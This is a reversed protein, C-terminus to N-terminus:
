VTSLTADTHQDLTTLQVIPVTPALHEWGNFVCAVRLPLLLLDKFAQEMAQKMTFLERKDSGSNNMGSKGPVAGVLNPHVNDAYCLTNTAATMEDAWDGGEKTTEINTIRVDHLERGNPDLMYGTIWAKGSNRLGLMFDRMKEKEKKIRELQKVPDTIHESQLLRQWYSREVEILYKVSSSNRLKARKGVSIMRKEDYSGGRFISAYYPVPYYPNTATPFRSVIAFKRGKEPTPSLRGDRLPSRGLRRELDGLPDIENLLPIREVAEPRAQQWDALYVYRIRGSRDAKAFRVSAADRHVLRNIKTGDASLIVITLAFYYFKMATAQELFYRPFNQALAWRVVQPDTTPQGTTTDTLRIGAGYLTLINTLKNQATVEDAEILDKLTYPLHNDHGWMAYTDREYGPVPRFQQGATDFTDTTDAVTVIEAQVGDTGLDLVSDKIYLDFNTDMHAFNLLFLVGSFYVLPCVLFGQM